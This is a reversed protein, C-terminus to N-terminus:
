NNAGTVGAFAEVIFISAGRMRAPPPKKKNTPRRHYSSSNTMRIPRSLICLSYSATGENFPWAAGHLRRQFLKTRHKSKACRTTESRRLLRCSDSGYRVDSRSRWCWHSEAVHAGVAHLCEGDPSGAAGAGCLGSVWEHRHRSALISHPLHFEVLHIEPNALFPLM